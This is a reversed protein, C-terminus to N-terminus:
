NPSVVFGTPNSGAVIVAEIPLLHHKPFSDGFSISFHNFNPVKKPVNSKPGDPDFTIVFHEVLHLPM